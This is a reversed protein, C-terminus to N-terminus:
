DGVDPFVLDVEGTLGLGADVPLESWHLALHVNIGGLCGDDEVFDEVLLVVWYDAERGVVHCWLEGVDVERLDLTEAEVLM